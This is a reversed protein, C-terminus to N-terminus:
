ISQGYRKVVPASCLQPWTHLRPRGRKGTPVADRFTERVARVDTCLGDTCVLLARPWAWAHVREILCRILPMDRHESVAGALWLRTRVMMALARWVVGGQKKVRSEDAQVQGLDRPQEVLSEQVAQGQLGTRAVWDAVPREDCGFAVVIAQLPCGHALLTSV